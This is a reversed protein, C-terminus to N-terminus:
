EELNEFDDARNYVPRKDTEPAITPAGPARDILSTLLEAAKKKGIAKDMAAPSLLKTETVDERAYGAETLAQLVQLEDTWKRNGM